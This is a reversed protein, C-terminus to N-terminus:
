KEEVSVVFDYVMQGLVTVGNEDLKSCYECHKGHMLVHDYGSYGFHKLTTLMLMTQEYRGKMDNDSVIFRM